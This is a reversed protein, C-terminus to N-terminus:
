QHLLILHAITDGKPATRGEPQLMGVIAGSGRDADDEEITMDPPPGADGFAGMSAPTGMSLLAIEMRMREIELEYLRTCDLRKPRRGLPVVVRGYLAATGRDYVDESGIVGMDIFPGSSAVATQCSTGGAGRVVDQGSVSPPTPLHVANQNYISSQSPIIIPTANSVESTTQASAQGLCAALVSILLHATCRPLSRM